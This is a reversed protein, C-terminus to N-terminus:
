SRLHSVFSDTNPFLTSFQNHLQKLNIIDTLGQNEMPFSDVMDYIHNTIMQMSFQECKEMSVILGDLQSYDPIGRKDTTWRVSSCVSM